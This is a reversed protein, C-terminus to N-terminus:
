RVARPSERRHALVADLRTEPAVELATVRPHSDLDRRLREFALYRDYADDLTTVDAPEFLCGPTLFVMARGGGSIATKVAERLRTPEDDSTVIVILEGAENRNRVRRVTGVLPDDRVRAVYREPEGVYADIVRAFAGGDGDIRAAIERAQAASRTAHAATDATPELDYLLAEAQAYTRIATSSRVANAVGEDGVTEIGIPDHRDAAVRVVGIAVERAHDLMSEGASGASMRGRHDVILAARRATEGETERVYVDALRATTKWDIQRLSDGPVYQRIEQTKVGPGPRDSQHEGYANRVTEGGRGVHVDLSRPRVTVTPTPGRDFRTRYLGTPGDMHVTPAPFAFRGAVPFSVDFTTDAAEEGSELDVTRGADDHEAGVPVDAHVSLPVTTTASPRSVALTVPVDTDVFTDTVSAAYEITLRDALRTFARGTVAAVGLLWAGVGAAAVLFLPREAVLGLVVLVLGSGATAWWRSTVNM